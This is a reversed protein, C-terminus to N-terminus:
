EELVATNVKKPFLLMPKLIRKNRERVLRIFFSGRMQKM